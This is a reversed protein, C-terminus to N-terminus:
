VEKPLSKAKEIWGLIKDRHEKEHMWVQLCFCCLAFGQSMAFPYFDDETAEPCDFEFRETHIWDSADTIKATPFRKLVIAEVKSDAYILEYM